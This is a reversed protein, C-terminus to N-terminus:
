YVLQHENSVFDLKADGKQVHDRLFHHIIKNRKTRSHQIHNKTLFIASTNDFM